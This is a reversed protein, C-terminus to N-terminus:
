IGGSHYHNKDEKNIKVYFEVGPVGVVNPYDTSNKKNYEETYQNFKIIEYLSVASGHDTISLGPVKNILAWEHWEKITTPSDLM